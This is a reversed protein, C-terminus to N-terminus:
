NTVEVSSVTFSHEPKVTFAPGAQVIQVFQTDVTLTVTFKLPDIAYRSEDRVATLLTPTDISTGAKVGAFFQKLKATLTAKADAAAVGALLEMTATARVDVPIKQGAPLAQTFTDASFIVGALEVASGAPTTFDIGAEPAAGGKEGITLVADAIRQDALLKATLPRVRLKEGVGLKQIEAAIVAQVNQHVQQIVAAPLSSGALVLQAGIQISVTKAPATVVRIGAPRLEEIKAMVEPPLDKPNRGPEALSVSIRIEGPVGNPMEEVKADRVQPLQLLGYTIAEVTGKSAAILADAARARLEQDSEDASSKTTARQNVVQDLGAIARQIVTLIGADVVPTTDDAARVRVEATSEGALMDHTESTEYRIKDAADTIPTGAPITINGPAGARRTFTVAGVARGARFRTYGLLAVVRNLSAGTATEIYANDYALNLQAYLLALEKSVAELLTRAVSGVNLDTLPTPDTSRPYYNVMLNTEPAPKKGFGLFRITDLDKSGAKSAVLEYDNLTFNYPTVPDSPKIGAIFGTVFSVRRVPRRQLVIDPVQVPRTKPDYKAVTHVERAVGQTLSTLVDRVIDPYERDIFSM